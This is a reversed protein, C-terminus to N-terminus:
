RTNRESHRLHKGTHSQEVHQDAGEIGKGPDDISQHLGPHRHLPDLQEKLQLLNVPEVVITEVRTDFQQLYFLFENMWLLWSILPRRGGVKVM